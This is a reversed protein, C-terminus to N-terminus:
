LLEYIDLHLRNPQLMAVNLNNILSCLLYKIRNYGEVIFQLGIKNNLLICSLWCVNLRPM